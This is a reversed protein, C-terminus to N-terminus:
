RPLLHFDYIVDGVKVTHGANNGGQTYLVCLTLPYSVCACVRMSVFVGKGEDGWQAGLVVTVGGPALKQRKEVPEAM